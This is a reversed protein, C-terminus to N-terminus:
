AHPPDRDLPWPGNCRAHAQALGQLARKAHEDTLSRWDRVVRPVLELRQLWKLWEPPQPREKPDRASAKGFSWRARFHAVLIEKSPADARRALVDCHCPKPACWCGLRKGRLEVLRCLLVPNADLDKEFEAIVRARDSEHELRHRNAWPSAPWGACARGCYVECPEHKVNVVRTLGHGAVTFLDPAATSM